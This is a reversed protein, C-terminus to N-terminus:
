WNLVAEGKHIAQALPTFRGESDHLILAPLLRLPAKSGKTAQIVIRHAPEEARPHIPRITLACFRGQCHTILDGIIEPRHIMVFRGSPQLLDAFARLWPALLSAEEDEPM